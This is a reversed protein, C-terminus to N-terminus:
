YTSDEKNEVAEPDRANPPDGFKLEIPQISISESTDPVIIRRSGIRITRGGQDGGNPKPTEGSEPNEKNPVIDIIGFQKFKPLSNPPYATVPDSRTEDSARLILAVPRHEKM